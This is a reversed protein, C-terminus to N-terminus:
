KGDDISNSAFEMILYTAESLEHIEWELAKAAEESAGKVDDAEKQLELAPNICGM